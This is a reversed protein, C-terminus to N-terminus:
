SVALGFSVLGSKDVSGNRAEHAHWRDVVNGVFFM